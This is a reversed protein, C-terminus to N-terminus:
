SHLEGVRRPFVGLRGNSSSGKWSIGSRKSQTSFVSTGLTIKYCTMGHLKWPGGDPQRPPQLWTMVKQMSGPCDQVLEEGFVTGYCFVNGVPSMFFNSSYYKSLHYGLRYGSDWAPRTMLTENTEQFPIVLLPDTANSSRRFLEYSSWSALYGSWCTAHITHLWLDKTSM